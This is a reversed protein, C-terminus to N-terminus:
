EKILAIDEVDEEKVKYDTNGDHIVYGGDEFTISCNRLVKNDLKVNCRRSGKFALNLKSGILENEFMEIETTFMSANETDEICKIFIHFDKDEPHYFEKIRKQCYPSLQSWVNMAMNLSNDSVEADYTLQLGKLIIGVQTVNLQLAVPNLTESTNYERVKKEIKAPNDKRPIEKDEYEIEVQMLQGGFRPVDRKKTSKSEKDNSEQNLSPDLLHLKNQITKHSVCLKDAIEAKSKFGHLEKIITVYPDEEVPKIMIDAVLEDINSIGYKQSISTIWENFLNWIKQKFSPIARYRRIYENMGYLIDEILGEDVKGIKNDAYEGMAKEIVFSLSKKDGWGHGNIIRNYTEDDFTGNERLVKLALEKRTM